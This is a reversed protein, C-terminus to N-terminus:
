YSEDNFQIVQVLQFLFANSSMPRPQVIGM